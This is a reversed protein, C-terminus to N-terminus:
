FKADQNKEKGSLAFISWFEIMMLSGSWLEFRIEWSEVWLVEPRVKQLM